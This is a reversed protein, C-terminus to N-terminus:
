NLKNIEKLVSETLFSEKDKLQKSDIFSEHGTINKLTVAAKICAVSWM